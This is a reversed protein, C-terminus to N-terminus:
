KNKSRYGNVSHKILIGRNVMDRKPDIFWGWKNFYNRASNLHHLLAKFEKYSSREHIHHISVNPYYLTQYHEHIRRSLDTDEFYLFFREDFLGVKQLAENRLFMFCGSLFPVDEITEYNTFKMEYEYMIHNVTKRLFPFFRRLFLQHPVPLLRCLTQLNGDPFLVKPMVLGVNTNMEMFSILETIIHQDFYIDPNLVLHYKTERVAKKLALNHARGYGINTGNFIYEISPHLCLERAEDTPSNDIVYLKSNHTAALYSEITKSLIDPKNKYTVISASIM